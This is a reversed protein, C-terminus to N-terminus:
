TPQEPKHWYPVQKLEGGGGLRHSGVGGRRHDGVRRGVSM